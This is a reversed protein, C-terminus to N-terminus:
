RTEPETYDPNRECTGTGYAMARIIVPPCSADSFDGGASIYVNHSYPDPTYTVPEGGGSCGPSVCKESRNHGEGGEGSAYGHQYQDSLDFSACLTFFTFDDPVDGPGSAAVPSGGGHPVYHGTNRHLGGNGLDSPGYDHDTVTSGDNGINIVGAYTRTDGSITIPLGDPQSYWTVYAYPNGTDTRTLGITLTSTDGCFAADLCLSFVAGPGLEVDTASSQTDPDTDSNLLMLGTVNELKYFLEKSSAVASGDHTQLSWPGVVERWPTSFGVDNDYRPIIETVEDCVIPEDPPFPTIDVPPTELDGIGGGDIDPLGDFGGFGPFGDDINIDSSSDGCVKEVGHTVTGADGPPGSALELSMVAGNRQVSTVLFYRPVATIGYTPDVLAIRSGPHIQPDNLLDTAHTDPERNTEGMKWRVIAEALSEDQILDSQFVQEVVRVRSSGLQANGDVARAWPTVECGNADELTVGTVNWVNQISDRGGYSRHDTFFHVSEGLEYTRDPVTDDDPFPDYRIRLVRGDGVTLTATRFVADLEQIIRSGPTQGDAHWKIAEHAGLVYGRDAIDADDYSVGCYDAIAKWAEGDTMGTLNMDSGTRTRRFRELQDVCRVRMAWPQADVDWGDITGAFLPYALGETFDLWEIQVDLGTELGAPRSALSFEAVTALQTLSTSIAVDSLTPVVTGNIRVRTRRPAAVFESM